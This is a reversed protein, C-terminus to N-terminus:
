GECETYMVVWQTNVCWVDQTISRDPFVKGSVCTYQIVSGNTALSANPTAKSISPVPPCRGVISLSWYYLTM